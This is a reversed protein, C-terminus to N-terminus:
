KKSIAHTWIFYFCRFMTGPTGFLNLFKGCQCSTMYLCLLIFGTKLDMEFGVSTLNGSFQSNISIEFLFPDKRIMFYALDLCLLKNRKIFVITFKLLYLNSSVAM